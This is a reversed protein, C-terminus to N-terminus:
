SLLTAAAQAATDVQRRFPELEALDRTGLAGGVYRAYVGELICALKWNAFALYTNFRSLDCGTVSAYQDVLQQRDWFGPATTATSEWASHEDNPGSWYVCLMALDALPDGLTCIEWDLVAIVRGTSDVMTNDLRYDGHVIKAPGQLPLDAILQNHVDDILALDRTRQQDWQGKWRRLQRALYDEHRALDGLGVDDLEVRHIAALTNALSCSAEGRASESLRREADSVDRIVHGDVFDMVYFPAGNISEDSCLGLVPPVPVETPGLADIIRAERAMDHASSLGHSLPPRRLVYRHQAADTVAFTLNSHGGTILDYAFPGTASPITDELWNGVSRTDIGDPDVVDGLHSPTTM